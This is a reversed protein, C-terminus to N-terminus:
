IIDITSLIRQRAVSMESSSMTLAPLFKVVDGHRGCTELILGNMFANRQFMKAATDGALQLGALCGMQNWRIVNPHRSALIYEGLDNLWAIVKQLGTVFYNQSWLRSAETASVMALNNGRFTGTHEGADWEDHVPKILALSLPLGVGSLSKSLCIIDPDLDPPFSFFEGCRGCGAQIDDVIFLVGRQVCLERLTMLLKPDLQYVGGECQVTEVIIGAPPLDSDIVSKATAYAADANDRPLVTNRGNGSYGRKSKVVSSVSAAGSTMGHYSGDFHLIGSRSTCIRALRLASEVCDTGTPGTFQLKYQMGRPELIHAQFEQIFRSRAETHMDLSNIIGGTSLYQIISETMAPHNHGYNLSSASM